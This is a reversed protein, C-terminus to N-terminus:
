NWEELSEDEFVDTMVLKDDGDANMKKFAAEWNKRSSSIPKLV